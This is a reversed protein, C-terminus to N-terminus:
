LNRFDCFDFENESETNYDSDGDDSEQLGLAKSVTAYNTEVSEESEEDSL